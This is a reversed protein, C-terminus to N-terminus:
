AVYGLRNSITVATDIALSSFAVLRSVPLCYAPGSVCIAGLVNGNHDLIPAGVCRVGEESEENDISYGQVQITALEEM